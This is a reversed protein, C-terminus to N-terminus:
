RGIDGREQASEAADDIRDATGHAHQEERAGRQPTERDGRAARRARLVDPRELGGLGRELPALVLDGRAAELRHEALAVLVAIYEVVEAVRPEARAFETPRDGGVSAGLAVQWGVGVELHM